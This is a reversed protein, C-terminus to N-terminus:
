RIHRIDQVMLFVMKSGVSCYYGRYVFSKKLGCGFNLHTNRVIQAM